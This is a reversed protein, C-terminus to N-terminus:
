VRSGKNKTMLGSPTPVTSLLDWLCRGCGEASSSDVHLWRHLGQGLGQGERQSIGKLASTEAHRDNLHACPPLAHISGQLFDGVDKKTAPTDLFQQILPPPSCRRDDRVGLGADSLGLVGPAQRGEGLISRLCSLPFWSGQKSGNIRRVQRMRPCTDQAGTEPTTRTSM